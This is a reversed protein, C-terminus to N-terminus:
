AGEKKPACEQEYLEAEGAGCVKCLNLTVSGNGDCIQEPRYKDDDTFCDHSRFTMREHDRKMQALAETRRKFNLHIFVSTVVGSPSGEIEAKMTPTWVTARAFNTYNPRAM